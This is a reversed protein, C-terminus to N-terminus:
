RRAGMIAGVLEAWTRGDPPEDLAARSVDDYDRHSVPKSRWKYSAQRSFGLAQCTVAVPIDDDALDLVLPYMM